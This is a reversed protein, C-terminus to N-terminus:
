SLDEVNADAEQQEFKITVISKSGRGKGISRSVTYGAKLLLKGLEFQEDKTLSGGIIDIQM